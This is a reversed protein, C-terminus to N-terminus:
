FFWFLRRGELFIKKLPPPFRHKFVFFILKCAFLTHIRLFFEKGFILPNKNRINKNVYLLFLGKMGRIIKKM